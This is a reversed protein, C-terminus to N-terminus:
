APSRNSVKNTTPTPDSVPTLIAQSRISPIPRRPKSNTFGNSNIHSDQCRTFRVRGSWRNVNLSPCNVRLVDVRDVYKEKLLRQAYAYAYKEKLLRQAYADDISRILMGKLTSSAM